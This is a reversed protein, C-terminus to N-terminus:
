SVGGAAVGGVFEGGCCNPRGAIYVIVSGSGELTERRCFEGGARMGIRAYVKWGHAFICKESRCGGPIIGGTLRSGLYSM